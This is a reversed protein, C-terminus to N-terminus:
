EVPKLNQILYILILILTITLPVVSLTAKFLKLKDKM